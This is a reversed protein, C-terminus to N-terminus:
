KKIIMEKLDINFFTNLIGIYSEVPAPIDKECSVGNNWANIWITMSLLINIFRSYRPPTELKKIYNESLLWSATFDLCSNGYISKIQQQLNSAYIFPKKCM